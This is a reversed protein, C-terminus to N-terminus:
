VEFRSCTNTSDIQISHWVCRADRNFVAFVTKM